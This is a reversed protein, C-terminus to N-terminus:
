WVQRMRLHRNQRITKLFQELPLTSIIRESPLRAFRQLRAQLFAKDRKDITEMDLYDLLKFEEDTLGNYAENNRQYREYIRKELWALKESTQFLEVMRSIESPPCTNKLLALLYEFALEFGGGESEAWANQIRAISLRSFDHTDSAITFCLMDAECAIEFIEPHLPTMLNYECVVGLAAMKQFLSYWNCTRVDFVGLFRDPHALIDTYPHRIMREVFQEAQRVNTFARGHYAMLIYDLSQLTDHTVCPAEPFWEVELGVLLTAEYKKRIEQRWSRAKMVYHKVEADFYEQIGPLQNLNSRYPIHYQYKEIVNKLLPTHESIGAWRDTKVWRLAFAVVEEITHIGDSFVKTHLHTDHNRCLIEGSDM